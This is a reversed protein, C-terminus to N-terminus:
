GNVHGGIIIVITLLCPGLQDGGFDRRGLERAFEQEVIVLGFGAHGLSLHKVVREMRM